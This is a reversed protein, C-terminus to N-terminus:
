DMIEDQRGVYLYVHTSQVCIRICKYSYVHHSETRRYEEPGEPTEDRVRPECGLVGHATHTHTHVCMYVCVSGCMRTHTM